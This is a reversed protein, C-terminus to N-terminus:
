RAFFVGGGFHPGISRALQFLPRVRFARRFVGLPRPSRCGEAAKLNGAMLSCLPLPSGCDLVSARLEAAGRKQPPLVLWGPLARM